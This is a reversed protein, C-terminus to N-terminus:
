RGGSEQARAQFLAIARDYAARAEVRENEAIHNSRNEWLLEVSQACWLASERSARIPENGVLVNVPNTHLQPFQRLAVWSSRKVEIEFSLEHELGDAAVESKGVVRGNEILEVLRTGGRIVENSRPAHLVRSDGQFRRGELTELTGYVVAKPTEPAFAVTAQVKIKSPASLKVDKFGPSEGNVTFNLAHAYGDSVYSRGRALAHCWQHFDVKSVPGESMKVYVRGQGVRRSSMCPFDTEGSIKLPFGCNMLHYWTNWEGVRGTNMASIFDCVGEATSVFIEMAGSGRMAPLVLNPLNNAEREAFEQLERVSLKKDEDTDIREFPGPLLGNEAEARDLLEDGNKDYRAVFRKAYAPPDVFLDSHPYGTV